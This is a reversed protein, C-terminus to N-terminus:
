RKVVPSEWIEDDYMDSSPTVEDSSDVDHRVTTEEDNQISNSGVLDATPDGSPEEVHGNQLSQDQTNQTLRQVVAVGTAVGAKSKVVEHQDGAELVSPDEDSASGREVGVLSASQFLAGVEEAPKGQGGGHDLSTVARTAKIGKQDQPRSGLGFFNNRVVYRVCQLVM